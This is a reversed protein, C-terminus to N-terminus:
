EDPLDPATFGIQRKRPEAPPEALLQIYDYIQQIQEGQEHQTREVERIKDALDKHTALYQRLRVVARVIAINLQIARKSKLVSSLMSVGHETFAFPARRLSMRANSNSTVFQSRWNDLEDRTLHFMFDPPFRDLNRRVAQN